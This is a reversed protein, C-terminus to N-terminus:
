SYNYNAHNEWVHTFAAVGNAWEEKVDGNTAITTRRIRWAPTDDAAGVAAEGRYFLNENVISIRKAYPMEDESEEEIAGMSPIYIVRDSSLELYLKRGNDEVVKTIVVSDQADPM